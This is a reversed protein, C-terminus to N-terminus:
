NFMGKPPADSTQMFGLTEYASSLIDLAKEEEANVSCISVRGDESACVLVASHEKKEFCVVIRSILIRLYDREEESMGEVIADMEKHTLINIADM